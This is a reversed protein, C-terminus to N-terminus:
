CFANSGISAFSIRDPIRYIYVNPSKGNGHDNRGM